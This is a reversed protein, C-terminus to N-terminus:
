GSLIKRLDEEKIVIKSKIERNVLRMKGLEDQLRRRYTSHTIGEKALMEKLENENFGSEAASNTSRRM